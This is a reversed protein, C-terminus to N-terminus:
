ARAKSVNCRVTTVLTRALYRDFQQREGVIAAAFGFQCIRDHSFKIRAPQRIQRDQALPEPLGPM